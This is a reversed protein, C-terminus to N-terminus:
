FFACLTDEDVLIDPRRAKAELARIEAILAANHHFFPTRQWPHTPRRRVGQGEGRLPSPPIAGRGKLSLPQPSPSHLAQHIAELVGDLNQMVENNWFRLVRFGQANLWADRQRDYSEAESHQGGDLEIVLHSELCVFDVIYPGLPHQRRFKTGDFRRARLQYWLKREAETSRARLKRALHHSAVRHEKAETQWFLANKGRAGPGEGELPSPPMARETLTRPEGGRGELSLPLPSPALREALAMLEAVLGERIFIKRADAPDIGAYNVSRRVVVPLGYLSLTEYAAVRGSQPQYHPETVERTLLHRALPEIWRPNIAANVAGWLRTTEIWQASMLWKPPQKALASGPHIALKRGKVGRYAVPELRGKGKAPTTKRGEEERLALHGLLGTLLARHIADEPAPRDNEKVGEAHFLARLEQHLARWERMRVYSLFHTECL